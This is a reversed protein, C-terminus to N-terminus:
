ANIIPYHVEDYDAVLNSLLVLEKSNEDVMPTDETVVLLLEEIREKAANYEIETKIQTM